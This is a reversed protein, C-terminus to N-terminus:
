LLMVSMLIIRRQDPRKDSYPTRGPLNLVVSLHRSGAEGGDERKRRDGILREQKIKIKFESFVYLCPPANAMSAIIGVLVLTGKILNSELRFALQYM